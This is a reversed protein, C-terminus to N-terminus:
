AAGNLMADLRSPPQVVRSTRKIGLKTLARTASNSLRTLQELDVAEGRVAAGQLREAQLVMAAAQRVLAQEAEGLATAGGLENAFAIALDRYRRAEISRGDVGPLAHLSNTLRSRLRLPRTAFEVTGPLSAGGINDM